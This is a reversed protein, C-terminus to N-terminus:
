KKDKKSLEENYEEIQSQIKKRILELTPDKVSNFDESNYIKEGIESGVILWMTRESPMIAALFACVISGIILRKAWKPAALM